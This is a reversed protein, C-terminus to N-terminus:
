KHLLRHYCEEMRSAALRNDFNQCVFTRGREGMRISLEYDVLLCHLHQALAEPDAPPVLYGTEGHRVVEPLGGVRSAVVPIGCAQAELAAVGFSESLSPMAFVRMSHLLPLLKEQSLYGTFTVSEKLSLRGALQELAPRHYGDGVLLLRAGPIERRISAFAELLYELGYVPKMQRVTGIVPENSLSPAPHFFGTDVGFPTIEIKSSGGGPPLHRRTEEAMDSSTSGILDASKLARRVLPRLHPRYPARYIDSGWVSLMFPHFGTCAALFGYSSAYHAHLLDPSLRSLLRKVRPLSLLYGAKGLFRPAPLTYVEVGPIDAPHFTIVTIRHGAQRMAQVWRTTHPQDAPALFVVHAM